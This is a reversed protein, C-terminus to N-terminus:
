HIEDFVAGLDHRQEGFAVRRASRV